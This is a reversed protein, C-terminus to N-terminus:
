LQAHKDVISEMRQIRDYNCFKLTRRSDTNTLDGTTRKNEGREGQVIHSAANLLLIQSCHISITLVKTIFVTNTLKTGDHLM